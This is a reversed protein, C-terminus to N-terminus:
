WGLRLEVRPSEDGSCYLAVCDVSWVVKDDMLVGAKEAADLIAKVVNDLDPKQCYPEREMPKTKWIMRQPRPFLALISASTPCSLPSSRWHDMLISAAFAEWHATKKPTYTRVAGGRMTARPRGKGIPPGPIVASWSNLNDML